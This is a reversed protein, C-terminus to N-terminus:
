KEHRERKRKIQKNEIAQNKFLVQVREKEKIQLDVSHSKLNFTEM